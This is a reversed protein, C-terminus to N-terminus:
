KDSRGKTGPGAPPEGWGGKNNPTEGAKGVCKDTGPNGDTCPTATPVAETSVPTGVVVPTETSVPTATPVPLVETSVPTPTGIIVPTETSTATTIRLNRVKQIVPVSCEKVEVVTKVGHTVDLDYSQIYEISPSAQASTSGASNYGVFWSLFVLFFLGVVKKM